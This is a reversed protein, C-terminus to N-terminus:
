GAAEVRDRGAAKARYLARDARIMLDDLIDGPREVWAVGISITVGDLGPIDRDFQLAAVDRRVDEAARLVGGPGSATILAAFEEGGVRGVLDNSRLRARIAKAVSAIVIDGAAHGFTDNVRKFRDIDLMLLALPPADQRYDALAAKVQRVFGRRNLIGTLGDHAAEHALQWRARLEALETRHYGISTTAIVLTVILLSLVATTAEDILALGSRQAILGIMFIGMNILVIQLRAARSAKWPGLLTKLWGRNSDRCLLGLCLALGGFMTPMAMRGYLSHVGYIYGVLSVMPAGVAIVAFALAWRYLGFYRAFLGASASAFMAATNWGMVVPTGEAAERALIRGWPDPLAMLEIGTVVEVIRAMAMGGILAALAPSLHRYRGLGSTILSVALLVLSLATWPATAPAGAFPRWIFELDFAFGLSTALGIGLGLWGLPRALRLAFTILSGQGHPITPLQRRELM